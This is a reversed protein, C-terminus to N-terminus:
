FILLYIESMFDGKGDNAKKNYGIRLTKNDFWCLPEIGTTVMLMGWFDFQLHSTWKKYFNEISLCNNCILSALGLWQENSINRMLRFWYLVMFIISIIQILDYDVIGDTM